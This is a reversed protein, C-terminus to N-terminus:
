IEKAYIFKSVLDKMNTKHDIFLRAVFEPSYPIFMFYTNFYNYTVAANTALISGSSNDLTLHHGIPISNDIAKFQVCIYGNKSNTYDGKFYNDDELTNTFIDYDITNSPCMSLSNVESRNPKDTYPYYTGAPIYKQVEEVTQPENGAGFMETLDILIPYVNTNISGARVNIILEVNNNDATYIYPICGFEGYFAKLGKIGLRINKENSNFSYYYKHNSVTALKYIFSFSAYNNSTGVINYGNGINTFTCGYGTYTDRLNNPSILQNFQLTSEAKDLKTDADWSTQPVGGVTVSTGSRAAEELAADATDKADQAIQRIEEADTSPIPPMQGEATRAIPIDVIMWRQVQDDKGAQFLLKTYPAITMEMPLEFTFASYMGELPKRISRGQANTMIVSKNWSKYTEGYDVHVKATNTGQVVIYGARDTGVQVTKEDVQVHTRNTELLTIKIM